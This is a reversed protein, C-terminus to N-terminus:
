NTCELDCKKWVKFTHHHNIHQLHGYMICCILNRKWKQKPTKHWFQLGLKNNRYSESFSVPRQLSRLRGQQLYGFVPQVHDQAVLEAQDQRLWTPQVTAGWLDRGLEALKHSQGKGQPNTLHLWLKSSYAATHLYVATQLTPTDTRHMPPFNHETDWFLLYFATSCCM